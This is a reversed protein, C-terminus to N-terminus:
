SATVATGSIDPQRAENQTAVISTPMRFHGSQALATVGAILGRREVSIEGAMAMDVAVNSRRM